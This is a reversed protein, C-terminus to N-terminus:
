SCPWHKKIPRLQEIGVITKYERERERERMENKRNKHVLTPSLVRAHAVNEIVMSFSVQERPLASHGKLSDLKM